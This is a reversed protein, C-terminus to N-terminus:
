ATTFARANIQLRELLAVSSLYNNVVEREEPERHQLQQAHHQSHFYSGPTLLYFDPSYPNENKSRRLISCTVNHVCNM